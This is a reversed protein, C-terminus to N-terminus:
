RCMLACHSLRTLQPRLMRNAISSSLLLLGLTLLAVVCTRKLVGVKIGMERCVDLVEIARKAGEHHGMTRPLGRSEARFCCSVVAETCSGVRLQDECLASVMKWQRGLDLCPSAPSRSIAEYCLGLSCELPGAQPQTRRLYKTEMHLWLGVMDAPAPAVYAMTVRDQHQQLGVTPPPTKAECLLWALRDHKVSNFYLCLDHKRLFKTSFHERANLRPPRRALFSHHCLWLDRGQHLSVTCAPSLRPFKVLQDELILCQRHSRSPSTMHDLCGSRVIVKKVSWDVQVRMRSDASISGGSGVARRSEGHARSRM